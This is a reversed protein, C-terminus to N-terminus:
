FYKIGLLADYNKKFLDGTDGNQLKDVIVVEFNIDILNKIKSFNKSSCFLTKISCYKLSESIDKKGFVLKNEWKPNQLNNLVLDLQLHNKLMLNKKIKNLMESYSLNGVVGDLKKVESSVGCILDFNSIEIESVKKEICIRSKNDTIEIIAANKNKINLVRYTKEQSFLNYFYDVDYRDSYNLYHLKLNWDRVIDLQKKGLKFDHVEKNVFFINNIVDDIKYNNEIYCRLDYLIDNAQKRKYTDKIKKNLNDIIDKLQNIVKDQSFNIWYISYCSDSKGRYKRLEKIKTFDSM